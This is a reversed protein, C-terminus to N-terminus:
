TLALRQGTELTGKGSPRAPLAQLGEACYILRQGSHQSNVYHKVRRAAGPVMEREAQRLRTGAVNPM